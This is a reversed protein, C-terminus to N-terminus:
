CTSGRLGLDEYIATNLERARLQHKLEGPMGNCVWAVALGHEPDAFGCSSQMGGHGFARDGAHLGFGYPVTSRGHRASNIIVGLGWDMVHQFTHDFMGDRQRTVFRDFMSPSLLRRDTPADSEILRAYFHALDRAPGRLSSGPRCLRRSRDRNLFPHPAPPTEHTLHMMGFKYRDDESEPVALWSNKMGARACVEKRVHEDPAAGTVRRILEGLVFWSGTVHYAAKAGPVWGPELPSACVRAVAEEWTFHEPVKDAERFGGTHTLLHWVTIAEKGGSAFEPILDAVPLDLALQGQEVLQLVAVATLPKGSSLWPMLHDTTLPEGPQNEGVAMHLLTIGHQLVAVQAGLHLGSEIGRELARLTKGFSRNM